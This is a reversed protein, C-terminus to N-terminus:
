LLLTKKKKVKFLAIDRKLVPDYDKSKVYKIKHTEGDLISNEDCLLDEIYIKNCVM